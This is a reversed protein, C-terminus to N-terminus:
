WTDGEWGYDRPNIWIDDIYIKATPNIRTGVINEKKKFYVFIDGKNL